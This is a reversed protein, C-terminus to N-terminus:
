SEAYADSDLDLKYSFIEAGDVPSFMSIRTKVRHRRGCAASSHSEGDVCLVLTHPDSSSGELVHALSIGGNVGCVGHHCGECGRSVLTRM